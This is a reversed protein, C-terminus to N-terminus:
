KRVQRMLTYISIGIGELILLIIVGVSFWTNLFCSMYALIGNIIMLCFDYIGHLLTPVLISKIKNLKEQEKNGDLHAQKAITLYYGMFIFLTGCICMCIVRIDLRYYVNYIDTVITLANSIIPFILKTFNHMKKNAEKEKDLSTLICIFIHIFLMFIPLIFVYLNKNMFGNPENNVGWHIVVKDPLQNYFFLNIVIPLLCLLSTFILSKKESKKM